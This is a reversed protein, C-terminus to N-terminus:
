RTAKASETLEIRGVLVRTAEHPVSLELPLFHDIWARPVMYFLRLGPRQFYSENWTALMAEAEDDFLGAATLEGKMSQRLMALGARSYANGAFRKMEGVEAMPASKAIAFGARTEFAVTGDARVDVLWV